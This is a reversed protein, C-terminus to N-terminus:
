VPLTLGWADERATWTRTSVPGSVLADARYRFHAGSVTVTHGEALLPAAEAGVSVPRVEVRATGGPGPLVSVSEVPRPPPPPPPPPARALASGCPGGGRAPR